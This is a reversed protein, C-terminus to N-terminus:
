WAIRVRCTGQSLAGIRAFADDSLDIIRGDVYPGRDDIIVSVSAGTDLNTVTVRTGKPLWRHAAVMGTRDYWSAEGVQEHEGGTGVEVIRDVPAQAVAEDLLVRRVERGDVSRIRYTRRVTGVRGEQIVRVEGAPLDEELRTVEGPQVREVESVTRIRIRTVRITTGDGLPHPRGPHVRDRGRLRVGLSDLVGGVTTADTIVERSVGGVVLHVARPPDLVIVAGGDVPASPSAAASRYGDLGADRLIEGMTDGAVWVTETDGALVFTVRRTHRVEIRTGEQLPADLAPTVVDHAQLDVGRRALFQGVSLSLTHVRTSRDGEVLTVSKDLSVYAVAGALLAAVMVLRVATKM